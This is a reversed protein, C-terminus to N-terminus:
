FFFHPSVWVKRGILMANALIFYSEFVLLKLSFPFPKYPLSSSYNKFNFFVIFVKLDIFILCIFIVYTLFSKVVVTKLCAQTREGLIWFSYFLHERIVLDIFISYIMNCKEKITFLLMDYNIIIDRAVFITSWGEALSKRVLKPNNQDLLCPCFEM